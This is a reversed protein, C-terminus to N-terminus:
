RKKIRSYRNLFIIELSFGSQTTLKPSEALIILIRVLLFEMALTSINKDFSYLPKRPIKNLTRMLVKKLLDEFIIVTERADARSRTSLKPTFFSFILVM